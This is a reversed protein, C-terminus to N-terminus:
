EFSYRFKLNLSKKNLKSSQQHCNFFPCFLSFGDIQENKIGSYTTLRKMKM